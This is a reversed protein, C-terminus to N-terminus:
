LFSLLLVGLIQLIWADDVLCILAGWLIMVPTMLFLMAKSNSAQTTTAKM